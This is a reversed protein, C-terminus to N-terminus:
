FKTKEYIKKVKCRTLSITFCNLFKLHLGFNNHIPSMLRM